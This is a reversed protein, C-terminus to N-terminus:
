TADIAAIEPSDHVILILDVVNFCGTLVNEVRVHITQTEPNINSYATTNTIENVDNEANELTEYYTVVIDTQMGGTIQNETSQIDFVGIGDNDTDCYELPIAPFVQLADVVSINLTTTVYCGTNPTEVRVFVIQPNSINTYPIALANADNEADAQTLYYRVSLGPIGGSIEDNKVNLDVATFGDATEDDCVILDTPANASPLEEFLIEFSTIAFCTNGTQTSEIRVFIIEGDTGLYNEALANTDGDADAFNEHYTINFNAANQMGLIDAEQTTFDYNEFGDGNLDCAIMNEPQNAIPQSYVCIEFNTTSFCDTNADNEIRAVIEQCAATNTFPFTLANTRNDADTQNAYYTVSFLGADQTGLITADLNTFNFNEFGDNSNDDCVDIDPAVNAIPVTNVILQFSTIAYCDNGAEASEIRVFITDQDTGTHNTALPNIDGDADDFNEHYTIDFDTANQTDLIDADQTSLNFTETTNADFDCAIMNNPQNAIPLTNVCIQFSTTDYCVSNSDNELRVFIQECQNTNTYPFTLANANNDADTQSLHYTVMFIAPDQTDLIADDLTTFNFEETGDNTLDDCVTIDPVANATPAPEVTITFGEQIIDACSNSIEVTYTTTTTPTFVPNPLTPDSVGTTPTWSYSTAGTISADVSSLSDGTCITEDGFALSNAFSVYDFCVRQLNAAGGTSSTFGFYAQSVGAFLNTVIDGTYSLRLSCDFYVDLTTTAATWEIRIIHEVGDEINTSTPSAQVPGALNAAGNHNNNGQSVIALHDFFPDGLENNQWTDFEVALSNNIGEYGMGGGLNGIEPTQTNKLIFTIGDAGNADNTGFFGRFEVVFDETVDIATGSWIAGSQTNINQTIEFCDGGIDVADGILSPM